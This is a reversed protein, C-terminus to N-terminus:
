MGKLEAELRSLDSSAGAMEVPALLDDLSDTPEVGPSGDSPGSKGILALAYLAADDHDVPDGDGTSGNEAAAAGDQPASAAPTSRIRYQDRVLADVAAKRVSASAIALAARMDAVWLDPLEDVDETAPDPGSGSKATTVLASTNAPMPTLGIFMLGVEKLVRVAQEGVMDFSKNFIPGFISLGNLIGERAKTRAEQARATSSFRFTTKLGYASDEAKVLAGIVGEASNQHDLTLPIVRKSGRWDALTKKFAGPVVVDDQQDVVNYVSAWGTMTGPDENAKALDWRVPVVGGVGIRLLEAEM